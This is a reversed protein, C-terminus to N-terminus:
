AGDTPEEPTAPTNAAVADALEKSKGDLDAALKKLAAPDNALARIQDALGGILTVASDMVTNTEEVEVALDDLEKSMDIEREASAREMGVVTNLKRDLRHVVVVLQQLQLSMEELSALVDITDWDIAM